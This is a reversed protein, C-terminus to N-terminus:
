NKWQAARRRYINLHHVISEQQKVIKTVGFETLEFIYEKLKKNIGICKLTGTSVTIIEGIKIPEM